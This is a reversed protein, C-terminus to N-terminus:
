QAGGVPLCRKCNHPALFLFSLLPNASSSTTAATTTAVQLRIDEDRTFYVFSFSLFFSAESTHTLMQWQQQQQQCV